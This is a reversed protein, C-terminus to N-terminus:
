TNDHESRHCGCYKCNGQEDFMEADNVHSTAKCEYERTKEESGDRKMKFIEKKHFTNICRGHLVGGLGVLLIGLFILKICHMKEREGFYNVKNYFILYHGM